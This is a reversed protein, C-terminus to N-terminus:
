VGLGSGTLQLLAVCRSTCRSPPYRAPRRRLRLRLLRDSPQAAPPPAREGRRVARESTLETSERTVRAHGSFHVWFAYASASGRTGRRRSRLPLRVSHSDRSRSLLLQCFFRRALQCFFKMAHVTLCELGDPALYSGGQPHTVHAHIKSARQRCATRPALSASSGCGRGDGPRAGPCLAGHITGVRM